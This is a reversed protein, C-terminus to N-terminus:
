SLNESMKTKFVDYSGGGYVIAEKAAQAIAAITERCRIYLLANDADQPPPSGDESHCMITLHEVEEFKETRIAKQMKVRRYKKAENMTSHLTIDLMYVYKKRADNQIMCCMDAETDEYGYHYISVSSGANAAFKYNKQAHLQASLENRTTHPGVISLTDKQTEGTSHIHQKMVLHLLTEATMGRLSADVKKIPVFGGGQNLDKELCLNIKEQLEEWLEADFYEYVTEPNAHLAFSAAVHRKIMDIASEKDTKQETHRDTAPANLVDATVLRFGYQLAPTQAHTTQALFARNKKSPLAFRNPRGCSVHKHKAM